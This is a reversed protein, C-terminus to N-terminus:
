SEIHKVTGDVIFTGAPLHAENV